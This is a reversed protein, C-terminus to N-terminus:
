AKNAKLDEPGQLAEGFVDFGFGQRWAPSSCTETWSSRSGSACAEQVARWFHGAVAVGAVVAAVAAVVGAGALLGGGAVLGGILGGLVATAIAAFLGFLKLAGHCAKGAVKSQWDDATVWAGSM